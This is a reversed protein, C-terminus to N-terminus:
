ADPGASVRDALRGSEKRAGVDLLYRRAEWRPPLTSMGAEEVM